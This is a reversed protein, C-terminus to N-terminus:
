RSVEATTAVNGQADFAVALVSVSEVHRGKVSAVCRADSQLTGTRMEAYTRGDGPTVSSGSRFDSVGAGSADYMGAEVSLTKSKAVATVYCNIHGNAPLPVLETALTKAQAQTAVLLLAAGIGTRILKSM